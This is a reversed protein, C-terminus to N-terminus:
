QSKGWVYATSRGGGTKEIKGDDVLKKLVREITTVSIDPCERAIDSKKISGLSNEVCEEVREAKTKSGSLM